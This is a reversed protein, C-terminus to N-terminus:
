DDLGGDTGVGGEEGFGFTRPPLEEFQRRVGGQGPQCAISGGQRRGGPGQTRGGADADRLPGAVGDEDPCRRRFPQGVSQGGGEGGATRGASQPGLDIRQPDSLPRLGLRGTTEGAMAVKGMRTKPSRPSLCRQGSTVSNSPASARSASSMISVMYAAGPTPSAALWIPMWFRMKTYSAPSPGKVTTFGVMTSVDSLQSYSSPQRDTGPIYKGMM